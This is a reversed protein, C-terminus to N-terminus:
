IKNLQKSTLDYSEKIKKDDTGINVLTLIMNEFLENNTM